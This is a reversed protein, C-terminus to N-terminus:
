LKLVWEKEKEKRKSVISADLLGRLNKETVMWNKWFKFQIHFIKIHGKISTILQHRVFVMNKLTKSVHRIDILDRM